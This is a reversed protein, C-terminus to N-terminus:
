KFISVASKIAKGVGYGIFTSGPVPLLVVSSIAASLAPIDDRKFKLNRRVAKGRVYTDTLLGKNNVSAWRKGIANGNKFAGSFSAFTSRVDRPLIKAMLSVTKM